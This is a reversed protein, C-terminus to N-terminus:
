VYYYKISLVTFFLIFGNCITTYELLQECKPPVNEMRELYTMRM